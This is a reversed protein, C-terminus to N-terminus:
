ILNLEQLITKTFVKAGNSTMFFSNFFYEQKQFRVDDMYDLFPINQLNVKSLFSYIYNQRIKPTLKLALTKFIPPIVIVPKFGRDICFDIMESITEARNNQDEIHHELLPAELDKIGFQRMWLDIYEQANEEYNCKHSKFTSVIIDIIDKVTHKICYLPMERMPFDKIKLAKLRESENFDIITAPHLFTYYKLNSEKSYASVLSSFPCLVIIVTAGDRLYSFYNKLINYDHALSQPGVAWNMGRLPVDSYDFDYKGSNSGLNVVDINFDCLSWFKQVGGWYRGYWRTQRIIRNSIRKILQKM